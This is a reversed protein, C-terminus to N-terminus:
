IVAPVRISGAPDPESQNAFTDILHFVEAPREFVLGHGAPLEALRADTIAGFLERSHSIPVMQDYVGGIVLTRARIQGIIGSLDIRRNLEMQLSVGPGAKAAALIEDLQQQRRSAVYPAGFLMLTVFGPLAESGADYLQQWVTNRLKQHGDTRIWGAILVLRDVLGPAQAATIAAVVAGLSYGVLVVPHLPSVQGIVAKVQEDLLELELPSGDDPTALDMAVVRHRGALMSFLASFHSEATGGTGHVMVITPEGNRPTGGDYYRVNLGRVTVTGETINPYFSM